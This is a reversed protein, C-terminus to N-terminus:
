EAAVAVQQELVELVIAHYRIEGRFEEEGLAFEFVAGAFVSDQLEEPLGSIHLFV